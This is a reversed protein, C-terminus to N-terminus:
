RPEVTNPLPRTRWKIRPMSPFLFLSFAFVSIIAATERRREEGEEMRGREGAIEWLGLNRVAVAGTEASYIALPATKM